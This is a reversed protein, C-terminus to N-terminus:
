SEEKYILGRRWVTFTRRQGPRTISGLLRRVTYRQISNRKRLTQANSHLFFSSLPSLNVYLEAWDVCLRCCHHDMNSTSFHNLTLNGRKQKVHGIHSHNSNAVTFVGCTRSRGVLSMYTLLSDSEKRLSLQPIQSCYVYRASLLFDDTMTSWTNDSHDRRGYQEVWYKSWWSLRDVIDDSRQDKASLGLFFM